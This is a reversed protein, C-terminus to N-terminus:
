KAVFDLLEALSGQGSKADLRYVAEACPGYVKDMKERTSELEGIAAELLDRGEAAKLFAVALSRPQEAGKEALAYSAFARSAFSNQKGTPGVKLCAEVLARLTREALEKDGDLNERLLERDICVYEYFLGAGFENTGIHGAGVDEEGKNLDDVATFYDDEVTVKHVSFAHAVQAAAEVNKSPDAALMRGFLAIDVTGHGNTLLKAYDEDKPEEGKAVRAILAQIGALEGTSIHALQEIQREEGSSAVEAGKKKGAQKPAKLKGFVAAVKKAVEDARASDVKKELLKDYVLNGLDKTRTGLSGELKMQLLDCTRWARKLSQSSVRLRQTGGVMATKPRGLDDRNLNAPPYSTLFHLQLFDSM